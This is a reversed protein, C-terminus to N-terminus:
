PMDSVGAAPDEDTQSGLHSKFSQGFRSEADLGGTNIGPIQKGGGTAVIMQLWGTVGREGRPNVWTVFNITAFCVAGAFFYKALMLRAEKGTDMTVLGGKGDPGGVRLPVLSGENHKTKVIVKGDFAAHAVEANKKAKGAVKDGAVVPWEVGKLDDGWREKAIRIVEAKIAVLQPDAPEFLFEARYSKKDDLAKGNIMVAKADWVNHYGIPLPPNIDLQVSKEATSM